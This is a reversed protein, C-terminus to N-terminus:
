SIVDPIFDVVLSAESDLLLLSHGVVRYEVGSPLPPLNLLLSPPTSQLPAGAPYVENVRIAPLHVPEAHRLSQRIREAEHGQMTIGVLRRFVTAVEPSFISGQLVGRREERIRRALERRYGNIASQSDTPRLNQMGSKAVNQLKVYAVVRRKFDELVLSDQNVKQALAVLSIALALWAVKM